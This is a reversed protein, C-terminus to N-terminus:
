SFRHAAVQVALSSDAEEQVALSSHAEGQEASFRAVWDEHLYAPLTTSRSTQNPTLTHVVQLHLKNASERL